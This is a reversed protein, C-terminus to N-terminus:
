DFVKYREGFARSPKGRAFELIHNHDFLIKKTKKPEQGSQTTARRTKWLAKLKEENMGSLQLSLDTIKVIPKGDAYMMADAIAYPEPRFGLRKITIEYSATKTGAVVQGRCKLRAAVGPVPEFHASEAEAIWGLRLLYIRLTHLCCEYMLTGPMVQDDIFHCTLFWANPHIDQEARIFGLGYDGGRTDLHVVRDILTLYVGGPITLPNNIPVGAFSDGFCLQFNGERLAVLKKNDYTETGSSPVLHNWNQKERTQKGIQLAPEIIGKGEALEEPTFFGACGDRMSLLPEGNVSGEFRFRFLYIDGQRFFNDIHIDFHITEGPGPLSRHFTVAADLLRYMALGRTHFDIGLYGSLFLDAQGAEIAIGAPIRGNDLYWKDKDIDHETILRGQTLSKPEGEVALIRDVVMYPEDPLRVRSPFQDVEAFDPGLVKALSGIAFELCQRRNLFVQQSPIEIKVSLQPSSESPVLNGGPFDRDAGRQQLLNMQWALWDAMVKQANASFSLFQNHASGMASRSDLLTQLIEGQCTIVMEPGLEQPPDQDMSKAVSVESSPINGNAYVVIEEKKKMKIAPVVDQPILIPPHGLNMTLLPQPINRPSSSEEKGYLADLVMPIRLVHLAALTRLFNDLCDQGPLYLALALHPHGQLIASIMRTCSGGPGVELFIRVGDQYAQRILKPFNLTAVAQATIADAANERSVPYHRGWGGSYFDINAVNKTPLLHLERYPRAVVQAIPCHVTSVGALATFGCGLSQVVEEVQRRQGGLICENPSNIILIYVKDKGQIVNQVDEASRSVVGALWDVNEKPSLNWAKRAARYEGALDSRFLPSRLMRGLMEDRDKWPGLAMLATSEGLSFGIACNPKIGHHHLLDTLATGLAVQGLILLRNDATSPMGQPNWFLHPLYQSQLYKNAKEQNAFIEPWHASLDKGMGPFHAGSGPYVFALKGKYKEPNATFFIGEAVQPNDGGPYSGLISKAKTLLSQLHELGNAIIACGLRTSSM